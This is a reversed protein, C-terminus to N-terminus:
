CDSLSSWNSHVEPSLVIEDCKLTKTRPDSRTLSVVSLDFGLCVGPTKVQCVQKKEKKQEVSFNSLVDIYHLIKDLWIYM